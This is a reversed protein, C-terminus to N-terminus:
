SGKLIKNLLTHIYKPRTMLFGTKLADSWTMSFCSQEAVSVVVFDFNQKYCTKM